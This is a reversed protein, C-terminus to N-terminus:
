SWIVPISQYGKLTNEKKLSLIRFEPLVAFAAHYDKILEYIMNHSCKQIIFDFDLLLQILESYKEAEILHYPLYTLLYSDYDKQYYRQLLYDCVRKQGNDIDLLYKRGRGAAGTLWDTISKHYPSYCENREPFFASLVQMKRRIEFESLKLLPSLEKATFPKKLCTIVELIIRFDDYNEIGSFIRDFYTIYIGVLGEPFSAIDNVNIQDTEVGYIFQRIYLFNGESKRIILEKIQRIATESRKIKGQILPDIFKKDLYASIDHINELCAADIEHPKYKSLLDLIDPIKRTSVVVKVNDPLDELREHLVRVINNSDTWSEDLADILIVVQEKLEISKLPDAFLRRFLTGPDLRTLQDFDIQKM